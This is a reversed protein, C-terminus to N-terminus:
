GRLFLSGDLTEIGEPSLRLGTDTEMAVSLNGAERVYWRVAFKASESPWDGSHAELHCGRTTWLRTTGCVRHISLPLAGVGNSSTRLIKRKFVCILGRTSVPLKWPRNEIGQGGAPVTAQFSGFNLTVQQEGPIM